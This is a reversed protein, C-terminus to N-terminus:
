AGNLDSYIVDLQVVGHILPCVTYVCLVAPASDHKRKFHAPNLNTTILKLPYQIKCQKLFIQQKTKICVHFWLAFNDKCALVKITKM